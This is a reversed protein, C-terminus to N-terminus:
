SCCHSEDETRADYTVYYMYRCFRDAGTNTATRTVCNERLKRMEHMFLIACGGIYHNANQVEEGGREKGEWGQGRDQRFLFGRYVFALWMHFQSPLDCLPRRGILNGTCLRSGLVNSFSLDFDYSSIM